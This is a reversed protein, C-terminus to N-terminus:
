RTMESEHLYMNLTSFNVESKTCWSDKRGHIKVNKNFSFIIFTSDDQRIAHFQPSGTLFKKNIEFSM